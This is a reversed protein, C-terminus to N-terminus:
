ARHETRYDSHGTADLRHLWTDVLPHRGMAGVVGVPVLDLDFTQGFRHRFSENVKRSNSFFWVRHNALDWCIDHANVSPLQQPLLELELQEKLERKVRSPIRDAGREKMWNDARLELEARVLKAPLRKNDVRLAFCLYQSYASDESSFETVCLNHLNVWGLTEGSTAKSFPEKFANENLRQILDDRQLDDPPDVVQYRNAGMAGKLLPM